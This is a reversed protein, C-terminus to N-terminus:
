HMTGCRNVVMCCQSPMGKYGVTESVTYFPVVNASICKLTANPSLVRNAQLCSSCNTCFYFLKKFNSCRSRIVRRQLRQCGNQILKTPGYHLSSARENSGDQKIFSQKTPNGNELKSIGSPKFHQLWVKLLIFVCQVIMHRNASKLSM